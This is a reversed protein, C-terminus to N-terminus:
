VAGWREAEGGLEATYEDSRVFGIHRVAEGIHLTVGADEGIRLPVAVTPGPKGYFAANMVGEAAGVREHVELPGYADLMRRHTIGFGLTWMYSATCREKDLVWYHRGSTGRLEAYVRQGPTDWYAIRALRLHGVDPNAMLFEVDGTVDLVWELVFDDLATLWVEGGIQAAANVMALFAGSPVVTLERGANEFVTRYLDLQWAPSGGDVVVYRLEGDYRLHNLLAQLTPITYWPRKYSLVCCTLAPLM